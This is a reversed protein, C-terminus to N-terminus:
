LVLARLALNSLTITAIDGARERYIDYLKSAAQYTSIYRGQQWNFWGVNYLLAARHRIDNESICKYCFVAQAHALM